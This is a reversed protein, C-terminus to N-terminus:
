KAPIPIAEAKAKEQQAQVVENVVIIMCDAFAMSVAAFRQDRFVSEVLSKLEDGTFKDRNSWYHGLGYGAPVGPIGPGEIPGEKQMIDQFLEMAEGVSLPIPVPVGPIAPMPMSMLLAKLKDKGVPM